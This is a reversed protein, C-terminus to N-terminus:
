CFKLDIFIFNYKFSNSQKAKTLIPHLEFNLM